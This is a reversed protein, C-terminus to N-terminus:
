LNESLKEIKEMIENLMRGIAAIAIEQPPFPDPSFEDKYGLEKVFDYYKKM